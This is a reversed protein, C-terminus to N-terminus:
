FADREAGRALGVEPDQLAEEAVDAARAAGRRVAATSPGSYSGTNEPLAVITSPRMRCKESGFESSAM